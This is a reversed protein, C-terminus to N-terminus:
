RIAAALAVPVYMYKNNYHDVVAPLSHYTASAELCIMGSIPTISTSCQMYTILCGIYTLQVDVHLRQHIGQGWAM